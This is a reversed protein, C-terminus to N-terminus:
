LYRNLILGVYPLPMYAQLAGYYATYPLTTSLQLQLLDVARRPDSYALANKLGTLFGDSGLLLRKLRQTGAPKELSPLSAQVDVLSKADAPCAKVSDIIWKEYKHDRYLGIEAAAPHCLALEVAAWLEPKLDVAHQKYRHDLRNVIDALKQLSDEIPLELHLQRSLQCTMRDLEYQAQKAHCVWAAASDAAQRYYRIWEDECEPPLQAEGNRYPFYAYPTVAQIPAYVKTREIARISRITTNMM